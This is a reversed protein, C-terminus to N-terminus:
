RGVTPTLWLEDVTVRHPQTAVYVVAAAIDESQLMTERAETSPPNPRHDLIATATDGPLITTARIGNPKEEANISHSVSIAGAKSAGYAIGSLTGPRRGAMSAVTIITGERQARMQPLVAKACNFVGNLNVGIVYEWQEQSINHLAREKTNVGANAVLLDIRGWEGVVREVLAGVAAADAVDAPLALAVGGGGNIEDAIAVVVDASRAVVAVKAGEAALAYVTARGMGSSAGTVIAVKGALKGEAM